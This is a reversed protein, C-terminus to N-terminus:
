DAERRRMFTSWDVVSERVMGAPLFHLDSAVMKGAAVCERDITHMRELAAQVSLAAAGTINKVKTDANM